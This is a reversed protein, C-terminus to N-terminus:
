RGNWCWMGTPAPRMGCYNTVSTGVRQQVRRGDADYANSETTGDPLSVSTLRDACGLRLDHHRQWQSGTDSRRARQLRVPTTTAGTSSSTLQDLNNYSYTTSTANISQSLRNGVPDYHYSAQHTVNSSADRM